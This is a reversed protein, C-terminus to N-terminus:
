EVLDWSLPTGKKIDRVAQRGIIKKLYKPSLGRGPRISRINQSTFKEGQNIDKVAFLSRRFVRSKKQKNTQGYYVEGKSKEVTRISKVLSELEDPETSFFSDPTNIERSLTFHKEVVEAGLAVAAVPVENGLTHDSLGVKCDFREKMDPITKLNMEKPDAPYRSVCKLLTIATAGAEKAANYAENIEELNAMGTSLILPKGTKAMYKILPIDVLEFSAIKHIPINIDELLDVTEKDYATAFFSIDIEDAKRKLDEFWELPTYAKKYLQYLTQGGWEPHDVQFYENNCNITMNQPTYAQFKVADVGCEKATKIMEVARNFDQGHNASAEAIIFTSKIDKLNIM